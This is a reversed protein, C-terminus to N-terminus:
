LVKVRGPKPEFITGDNLLGDIIGEVTEKEIEIQEVVDKYLVGNEDDQDKITSLVRDKQVSEDMLESRNLSLKQNVSDSDLLINADQMDIKLTEPAELKYESNEHYVPTTHSAHDMSLGTDLEVPLADEDIGIKSLLDDVGVGDVESFRMYSNAWDALKEETLVSALIKHLTSLTIGGTETKETTVVYHKHPRTSSDKYILGIKTLQRTYARATQKAVGMWKELDDNTFYEADINADKDEIKERLESTGFKTPKVKDKIYDYADMTAETQGRIMTNIFNKNIVIGRAVDKWTVLTDKQGNDHEIKPRQRHYLYAPLESAIELTKPYDRKINDTHTPVEEDLDRVFPNSVLVDDGALIDLACEIVAELQEIDEPEHVYEPLEHERNQFQRVKKNQESTMSPSYAMGRSMDQKDIIGENVTTSIVVPAGELTLKASEHGDGRDLNLRKNVEGESVLQRFIQFVDRDDEQEPIEGFFVIKNDFYAEGENEAIRYISSKTADTLKEVMHDPFLDIVQKAIYSKGEGQKQIGFVMLPNDTDKSLMQLFLGMKNCDEGAVRHDLVTKVKKLVHEDALLEEAQEIISESYRDEISEQNDEQSAVHDVHEKFEERLNRKSGNMEDFVINREAKKCHMLKGYIRKKVDLRDKPGTDQSNFQKVLEIAKEFADGETQRGSEM